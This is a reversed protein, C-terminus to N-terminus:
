EASATSLLFKFNLQGGFGSMYAGLQMLAWHVIIIVLFVVLLSLLSVTAMRLKQINSIM